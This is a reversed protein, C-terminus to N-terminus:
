SAQGAGTLFEILGYPAREGLCLDQIQHADAAEAASRAFMATEFTALAAELEANRAALTGHDDHREDAARRLAAIEDVLQRCRRETAEANRQGLVVANDALHLLYNATASM